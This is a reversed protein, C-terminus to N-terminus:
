RSPRRIFFPVLFVLCALLFLVSGATMVADGSRVSGAIFFGACIIFIIWGALHCKKEFDM